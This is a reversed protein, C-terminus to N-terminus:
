FRYIAKEAKQYANETPTIGADRAEILNNWTHESCIQKVKETVHSMSASQQNEYEECGCLVGGVNHWWDIQYLIGYKKLEKALEYEEEQSSAKLLNNAGGFIGKFKMKPIIEKTILGGVAAPSFIDAETFLIKDTTTITIDADPYKEKLANSNSEDLDCVILSASEKLYYEALYSGVAGLGQIAISVGNLSENNFLYKCAQKVAYYVGLATPTGTAGLPGGPGGTINLSFNEKIVDAMEPPFGMDPGTFNRSRDLCYSLFGIVELNNLDLPSMMVTIKTGGYPIRAAFNKFSMGRGLNLGDIIVDYEKEHLEHRRIGGARIAQSRNNLGLYDCHVNNMFRINYKKSYYCDIFIHRGKRLLEIISELYEELEYNKFISKLEENQYSRNEKTLFSSATFNKNYEDWKINEDWEKSAYLLSSDTKWDYSIKLHNIDEKHMLDFISNKM